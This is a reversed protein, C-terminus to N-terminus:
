AIFGRRKLEKSLTNYTSEISGNNQILFDNVPLYDRSDGGFNHGARELRCILINERGFKSILPEVEDWFGSDSFPYFGEEKISRASMVGFYDKGFNPKVVVESTHILAQRCSYKKGKRSFEDLEIEKMERSNNIKELEDVSMSYLPAAISMLSDKFRRKYTKSNKLVLLDALTDKGSGPPGNLLLIKINSM